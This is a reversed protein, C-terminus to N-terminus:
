ITKEVTLKRDVSISQMDDGDHDLTPSTATSRSTAMERTPRFASSILRAHYVKEAMEREVVELWKTNCSTWTQM